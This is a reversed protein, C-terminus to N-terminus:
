SGPSASRALAPEAVARMMWPKRRRSAGGDDVKANGGPTLHWRLDPDEPLFERFHLALESEHRIIAGKSSDLTKM